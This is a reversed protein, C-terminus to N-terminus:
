PSSPRQRAHGCSARTSAGTTSASTMCARRRQAMKGTMRRTMGGMPGGRPRRTPNPVRRMCPAEGQRQAALRARHPHTKGGERAGEHAPARLRRTAEMGDMVPMQIDMLVCDFDAALLAQVAREGNDATTVRAGMNELLRTVALRNVADDEALLIARGRLALADAAPPDAVTEEVKNVFRFPLSVSFATGAGPTSEVTVTGRMLRVLRRVIPLGLGAGQYRRTSATEAQVFPEFIDKLRDEAIGIGTDRVTFVVRCGRSRSAQVRWAEVVVEGQDTFKVANGVLNFLVQRLRMADGRLHRPIREDVSVRLALGREAAPGEFLGRVEDLVARAEFPEDHLELKGAEIRSLDLIDGLLLGLRRCSQTAASVYVTRMAKAPDAQLLQLMGMIGNLPTRIEHSMNALFESKTRSAAEAAEKACRLECEARKRASSDRVIALLLPDGDAEEVLAMRVEVPLPTGGRTRHTTEFTAKRASELEARLRAFGRQDLREDIDFLTMRLLQERTHGTQHEAEPNADLVHGTGDVLYIADGASEVLMRLRLESHRLAEEARRQETVDTIISYLLPEGHLVLTGTNSEVDRTTGNAMRHRFRFRQKEGRAASSLEGRLAGPPLTNIDSIHMTRLVERPWGYFEAAAPSADRIAKTTPDILLAVVHNNEFLGRYRAESERLARGARMRELEATARGALIRMLAVGEGTPPAMPLDHFVALVGLPTGQADRLALGMYSQIGLSAHLQAEPFLEQVGDPYVCLDPSNLTRACPTGYLAYDFPEGPAEGLWAALVRLYDGDDRKGGDDQTTPGGQDGADSLEGILAYRAGLGHALQQVLMRFFEQEVLPSTVQVISRLTNEARGLARRTRRLRLTLWLLLAAAPLILTADDILRVWWPDPPQVGTPVAQLAAGPLADAAASGVLGSLSSLSSLSSLASLASAPTAREARPIPDPPVETGSAAAACLVIALVLTVLRATVSAAGSHHVSPM